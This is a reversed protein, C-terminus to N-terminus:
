GPRLECAVEDPLEERVKWRIIKRAGPKKIMRNQKMDQRANM